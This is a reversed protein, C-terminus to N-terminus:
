NGTLRSYFNEQKTAFDVIANSIFPYETVIIEATKDTLNSPDIVTGDHAFKDGGLVLVKLMDVNEKVEKEDMSASSLTKSKGKTIKRFFAKGEKSTIAKVKFKLQVVPDEAPYPILLESGEDSINKGLVESLDIMKEKAM